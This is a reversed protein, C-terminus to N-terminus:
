RRLIGKLQYRDSRAVTISYSIPRSRQDFTVRRLQLLPFGRGVELKEAQRKSAAIAEITQEAYKVEIGYQKELFDYYDIRGFDEATMKPFQEQELYLKLISLPASNAFQLQEISIISNGLQTNLIQALTKDAPELRFDLIKVHPKQGQSIILDNFLFLKDMNRHVKNHAVYTGLPRFRMLIGERELEVVAHRATMRSVKFKIALGEETMIRQGPSWNGSAIECMIADKIQQYMPIKKESM